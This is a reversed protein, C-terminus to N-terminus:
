DSRRSAGILESVNKNLTGIVAKDVERQTELLRVRRELEDIREDKKKSAARAADRGKIAGDAVRGCRLLHERLSQWLPSGLTNTHPGLQHILSYSLTLLNTTPTYTPRTEPPTHPTSTIQKPPTTFPDSLHRRKSIPSEPPSLDFDIPEPDLDFRPRKTPSTRAFINKKYSYEEDSEEWDHTEIEASKSEKRKTPTDHYEFGDDQAPQLRPYMTQVLQPQKSPPVETAAPAPTPVQAAPSVV